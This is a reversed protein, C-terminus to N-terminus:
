SRRRGQSATHKILIIAPFRGVATTNLNKGQVFRGGEVWKEVTMLDKPAVDIEGEGESKYGKQAVYFRNPIILSQTPPNIRMVDAKTLVPSTISAITTMRRKSSEDSSSGSEDRLIQITETSNIGRQASGSGEVPHPVNITSLKTEVIDEASKKTSIITMLFDFDPEGYRVIRKTVRGDAAVEEVDIFLQSVAPGGQKHIRRTGALVDSQNTELFSRYYEYEQDSRRVEHRLKRIGGGPQAEEEEIVLYDDPPQGHRLITRSTT